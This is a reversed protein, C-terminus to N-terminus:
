WVKRSKSLGKTQYKGFESVLLCRERWLMEHNYEFQQAKKYRATKIIKM